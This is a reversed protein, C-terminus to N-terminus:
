SKRKDQKKNKIPKMLRIPEGKEFVYSKIIYRKGKLISSVKKIKM